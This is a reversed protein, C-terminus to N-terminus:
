RTPSHRALDRRNEELTFGDRPWTGLSSRRLDDRSEMVAAYDLSAHAERLPRVVFADTEFGDRIPHEFRDQEM